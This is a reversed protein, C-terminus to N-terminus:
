KNVMYLKAKNKNYSQINANIKIILKSISIDINIHINNEYTDYIVLDLFYPESYIINVTYHM